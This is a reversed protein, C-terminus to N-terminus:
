KSKREFSANYKELKELVAQLEESAKRVWEARQRVAAMPNMVKLKPNPKEHDLESYINKWNDIFELPTYFKRDKSDYIWCGNVYANKYTAIIHSPVEIVEQGKGRWAPVLEPKDAM